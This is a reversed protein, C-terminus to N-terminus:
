PTGGGVPTPMTLTLRGTADSHVLGRAALANVAVMVTAVPLCCCAALEALDVLAGNRGGVNHALQGAVLREPISLGATRLRVTWAARARATM